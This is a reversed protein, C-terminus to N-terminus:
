LKPMKLIVNILLTFTVTWKLKILIILLRSQFKIYIIYIKNAYIRYIQKAPNNYQMQKLISECHVGKLM